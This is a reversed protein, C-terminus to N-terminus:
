LVVWQDLLTQKWNIIRCESRSTWGHGWIDVSGISRTTLMPIRVPWLSQQTHWYYYYWRKVDGGELVFMVPFPGAIEKAVIVPALFRRCPCGISHVIIYLTESQWLKSVPSFLKAFSVSKPGVINKHTPSISKHDTALPSPTYCASMPTKIPSHAMCLQHLYRPRCAPIGCPLSVPGWGESSTGYMFSKCTSPFYKRHPKINRKGKTTIM